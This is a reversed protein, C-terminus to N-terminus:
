RSPASTSPHVTEMKEGITLLLSLSLSLDRVLVWRGNEQLRDELNLSLALRPDLMVEPGEKVLLELVLKECLRRLSSDDEVVVTATVNEITTGPEVAVPQLVGKGECAANIGPGPVDIGGNLAVPQFQILEM